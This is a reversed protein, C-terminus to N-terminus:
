GNQRHVCASDKEMADFPCAMGATTAKLLQHICGFMGEIDSVERHAHLPDACTLAAAVM